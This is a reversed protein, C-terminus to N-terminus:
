AAETGLAKTATVPLRTMPKALVEPAANHMPEARDALVREGAADLLGDRESADAPVSAHGVDCRVHDGNPLTIANVASRVQAAVDAAAEADDGPLLVCFEDADHRSISGRADVVSEIEAAIARLLRDGEAHGFEDNIGAFDEIDVLMLSLPRQSRHHRAFAADLLENMLRRNGAGTVPDRRVLRDLEESQEEAPELIQSGAAALAWMSFITTVGAFRTAPDVLGSLLVGGILASAVLLHGLMHLKNRNRVTIMPGLFIGAGIALSGGPQYILLAAAVSAAVFLVYLHSGVSGIPPAEARWFILAALGLGGAVLPLEDRNMSPVALMLALTMFASVLLVLSTAGWVRPDTALESRTMRRAIPAPRADGLRPMAHEPVEVHPLPHGTLKDDLMRDHGVQLLTTASSADDPFTAIGVAATVNSAPGALNQLASTVDGAFTVAQLSSTDDLILCFENGSIRAVLDEPRVVRELAGAIELLVADGGNYGLRQNISAFGTVDMRIISLPRGTRRHRLLQDQLHENLFRHNGLGTLPDRRVLVELEDGQREIGEFLITACFGLLWIAPIVFLTTITAAQDVLGLASPLLLLVSAMAFHGALHRRDTIRMSTAPAIFIACAIAAGSAPRLAVVALAVCSYLSALFVHNKLSGLHGPESRVISVSFAILLAAMLGTSARDVQLGFPHVTLVVLVAAFLGFIGASSVWVRRSSALEDRSVRTHFLPPISIESLRARINPFTM